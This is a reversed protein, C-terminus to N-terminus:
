IRLELINESTVLRSYIWMRKNRQVRFHVVFGCDSFICQLHALIRTKTLKNKNNDQQRNRASMM